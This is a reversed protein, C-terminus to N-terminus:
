MGINLTPRIWHLLAPKMSSQELKQKRMLQYLGFVTCYAVTDGKWRRGWRETPMAFSWSIWCSVERERLSWTNKSRALSTDGAPGTGPQWDHHHYLAFVTNPITWQVLELVLPRSGLELFDPRIRHISNPRRQRDMGETSITCCKNSKPYVHLYTQMTASSALPYGQTLKFWRHWPCQKYDLELRRNPSHRLSIQDYILPDRVM